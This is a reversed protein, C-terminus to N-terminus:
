KWFGLLDLGKGGRERTLAGLRLFAGVMRIPAEKVAPVPEAPQTPALVRLALEQM